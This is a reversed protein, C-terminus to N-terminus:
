KDMESLRSSAKRAYESEPYKKIIEEYLQRAHETNNQLEEFEATKFLEEADGGTCAIVVPLMFILLLIVVPRMIKM